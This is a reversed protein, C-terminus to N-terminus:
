ISVQYSLLILLGFSRLTWIVTRIWNTQVLRRHTEVDFQKQLQNHCPVQLLFTSAWIIVVGLFNLLWWTKSIEQPWFWFLAIATILEIVMPTMVVWGTRLAHNLAFKSFNETVRNFLPYHVIQVFWIVGTMYWVMAFHILWISTSM